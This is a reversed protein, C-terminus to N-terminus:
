QTEIELMKSLIHELNEHSFAAVFPKAGYVVDNRMWQETTEAYLYTNTLILGAVSLTRPAEEYTRGLVYKAYKENETIGDTFLILNQTTSEIKNSYMSQIAYMIGSYTVTGGDSFREEPFSNIFNDMDTATIVVHWRGIMGTKNSFEFYGVAVKMHYNDSIIRLVRESKLANRIFERQINLQANSISGSTDVLFAIEVDVREALAPAIHIFLILALWKFVRM